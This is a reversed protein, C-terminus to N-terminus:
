GKPPPRVMVCCDRMWLGVVVFLGKKCNRMGGFLLVSYCDFLVDRYGCMFGCVGGEWFYYDLYFL